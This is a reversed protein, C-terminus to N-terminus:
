VKKCIDSAAVISEAVFLSLLDCNNPSIELYKYYARKREKVILPPMINNQLAQAFMILRGTRGNGDSFPHIHEFRSHLKAIHEIIDKPSTNLDAILEDMLRNVSAHNALVVSSGLIRVGHNRYSGANSIITNMLRLHINFIIQETWKFKKGQSALEDLLYFMAARHNRTEIQERATKNSLVKNDDDLVEKVESLTLTSGEITNTHYTLFLTLKDLLATNKIIEMVTIKQALAQKKVMNLFEEDIGTRGVIDLYAEDIKKVAKLRPKARGNIWSNLTSFSVELNHALREQSWQANALIEKLKLISDKEM